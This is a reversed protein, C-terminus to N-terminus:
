LRYFPNIKYIFNPIFIKSVFMGSLEELQIDNKTSNQDSSTASDLLWTEMGLDIFSCYNSAGSSNTPMIQGNCKTRLIENVRACRNRFSQISTIIKLCQKCIGTPGDNQNVQFDRM